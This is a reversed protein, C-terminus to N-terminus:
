QDNFVSGYSNFNVKEICTPYSRPCTNLPAYSYYGVGEKGQAAIWLKDPESIVIGVHTLPDNGWVGDGNNYDPPGSKDYTNDFFILDGYKVSSESPRVTVISHQGEANKGVFKDYGVRRYAWAVFGSCDIRLIYDGGYRDSCFKNAPSFPDKCGFGYPTGFLKSAWSIIMRRATLAVRPRTAVENEWREETCPPFIGDIPEKPRLVPLWNSDSCASGGSYGGSILYPGGGTEDLIILGAGKWSGITIESEPVTATFGAAVGNKIDTIDEQSLSLKPLITNINSSNIQYVPVGRYAAIKIVKTAAIDPGGFAGKLELGEWASGTLGALLMFDKKRKTKNDLTGLAMIDTDVDIVYGKRSAAKPIGFFYTLTLAGTVTAQSPLQHYLVHNSTGYFSREYHIDHFWLKGLNHLFQGFTDDLIALGQENLEANIQLQKGGVAPADGVADMGQVVMATYVGATIENV